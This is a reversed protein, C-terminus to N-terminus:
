HRLSCYPVPAEHAPELRQGLVMQGSLPDLCPQFVPASPGDNVVTATALVIGLAILGKVKAM